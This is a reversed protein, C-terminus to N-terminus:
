KKRYNIKSISKIGVARNNETNYESIFDVDKQWKEVANRYQWKGKNSDILMNLFSKLSETTYLGSDIAGCLIVRRQEDSLNDKANVNYGLLHLDSEQRWNKFDSKNENIYSEYSIQKCLLVGYSKLREYDSNLIIYKNCKKCFAATVKQETIIGYRSVTKVIANVMETEHNNLCHFGYSYVVFDMFDLIPVSPESAFSIKEQNFSEGGIEPVPPSLKLESTIQASEEVETEDYKYSLCFSVFAKINSKNDSITTMLDFGISDIPREGIEFVAVTVSEEEVDIIHQSLPSTYIKESGSTNIYIQLHSAYLSIIENTYNNVSIYFRTNHFDFATGTLSIMVDNQNFIPLSYETYHSNKIKDCSNKILKWGDELLSFSISCKKQPVVEGISYDMTFQITDYIMMSSSPLDEAKIIASYVDSKKKDLTIKQFPKEVYHYNFWYSEQARILEVKTSDIFIKSSPYKSFMFDVIICPVDSDKIIISECRIKQLSIEIEPVFLRM